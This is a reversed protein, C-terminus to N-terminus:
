IDYDYIRNYHFMIFDDMFVCYAYTRVTYLKVNGNAKIVM